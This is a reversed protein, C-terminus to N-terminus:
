LNSVGSHASMEVEHFNRNWDCGLKIRQVHLCVNRWEWEEFRWELVAAKMSSLIEISMNMMMEKTKKMKRTIKAIVLVPRALTLLAKKTRHWLIFWYWWWSQGGHFTSRWRLLCDCCCSCCSGRWFVMFSGGCFDGCESLLEFIRREIVCPCLPRCRRFSRGWFTFRFGIIYNRSWCRRLLLVLWPSWWFWFSRRFWVSHITYLLLKRCRWFRSRNRCIRCDRLRDCNIQSRM